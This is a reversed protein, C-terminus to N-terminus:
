FTMHKHGTTTNLETAFDENEEREKCSTSGNCLKDILEHPAIKGGSLRAMMMLKRVMGKLAQYIRSNNMPMVGCLPRIVPERLM